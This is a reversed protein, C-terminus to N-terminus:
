APSSLMQGSAQCAITVVKASNTVLPLSSTTVSNTVTTVLGKESFRRRWMKGSVGSCCNRFGAQIAAIDHKHIPLLPTSPNLDSAWVRRGMQKAVEITTGGGVFPDVVIQGPETYFWLLNEVVQRPMRGFYSSEGEAKQFQWVDFHQINGWPNKDTASPPQVFKCDSQIKTCWGQITTHSEGIEDAIERTSFCNLWL